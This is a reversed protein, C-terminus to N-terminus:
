IELDAFQISIHNESSLFEIEITKSFHSSLTKSFRKGLRKMDSDLRIYDPFIIIEEPNYDAIFNELYIKRASDALESFGVVEFGAKKFGLSFGGCGAFLAIAKAM